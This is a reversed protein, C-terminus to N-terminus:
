LTTGAFSLDANSAPNFHIKFHLQKVKTLIETYKQPIFSPYNITVDVVFRLVDRVSSASTISPAFASPM